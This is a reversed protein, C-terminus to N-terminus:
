LSLTLTQPGPIVLLTPNNRWTDCKPSGGASPGLWDGKFRAEYWKEPFLRAIYLTNFHQQFDDFDM